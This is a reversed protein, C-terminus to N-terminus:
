YATVTFSASNGPTQSPAAWTFSGTNSGDVIRCYNQRTFLSCSGDLVTSDGCGWFNVSGWKSEATEENVWEASAGSFYPANFDFETYQNTTENELFVFGTSNGDYWVQVNVDDGANLAPAAEYISGNPYDEVFFEYPATGGYYEAGSCAGAQILDNNPVEGGMGAWFATWHTGVYSPQYWDACASYFTATNNYGSEVDYGAWPTATEPVWNYWTEVLGFRNLSPIQIPKVYQKAHKMVNDWAALDEANTPKAPFGYKQLDGPTATLPDFSAPPQPIVNNVVVPLSSALSPGTGVTGANSALPLLLSLCVALALFLSAVTKIKLKKFM